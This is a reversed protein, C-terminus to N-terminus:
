EVNSNNIEIGKTNWYPDISGASNIIKNNSLKTFLNKFDDMVIKIIQKIYRKSKM